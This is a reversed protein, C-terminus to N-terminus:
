SEAILKGLEIVADMLNDAHITFHEFTELDIAELTYGCEGKYAVIHVNCVLAM